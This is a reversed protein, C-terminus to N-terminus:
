TNDGDTYKMKAKDFVDKKVKKLIWNKVSKIFVKLKTMIM